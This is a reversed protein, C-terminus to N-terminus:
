KSHSAYNHMNHQLPDNGLHMNANAILYISVLKHGILLTILNLHNDLLENIATALPNLEYNIDHMRGPPWLSVVLM